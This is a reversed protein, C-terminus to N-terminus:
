NGWATLEQGLGKPDAIRNDNNDDDDSCASFIGMTLVLAM